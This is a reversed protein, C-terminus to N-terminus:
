KNDEPDYEIKYGYPSIVLTIAGKPKIEFNPFTVRCDKM